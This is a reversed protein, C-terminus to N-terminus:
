IPQKLAIDPAPVAVALEQLHMHRDLVSADERRGPGRGHGVRRRVSDRFAGAGFIQHFVIVVLLRVGWSSLLRVESRTDTKTRASFLESQALRNQEVRM